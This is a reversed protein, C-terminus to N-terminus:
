CKPKKFSNVFMKPIVPVSSASSFEVIQIRRCVADVTKEDDWIESPHYQSTVVIKKPRIMRYTGKIEAQFPYRDLWRKMQGGQKVQFKDFDEILVVDEDDYGDWWKTEPDKSYFGPNEDRARRSKGCGTPGVFWQHHPGDGDLEVVDRPRKARIRELSELRTAYVDPFEVRVQEYNADRALDIVRDWRAKEKAGKEGASLPCEGQEYFDGDKECYTRNQAPTGKSVELHVGSPLLAVVGAFGRPSAFYVFGQLHPTRTTPAVEKGFCLYRADLDKLQSIADETYNNLTFSFGRHKSM